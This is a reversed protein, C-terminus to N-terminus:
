IGEARRTELDAWVRAAREAVFDPPPGMPLRCEGVAVGLHNMMVKSPIPNPADDGTEYAFSPLLIQNVRRAGATDGSEWRDFMTQHEPASWHTAVGIVGCAGISMLPLTLSDDGSYIEFDSPANAVVSATEGPNGAADKLALVNPVDRALQVITNTNIKRGSRVPIDYM